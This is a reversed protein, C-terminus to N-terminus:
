NRRPKGGDSIQVPRGAAEIGGRKDAEEVDCRARIALYWFDLDRGDPRGAQEWLRYAERRVEEEFLPDGMRAHPPNFRESPSSM